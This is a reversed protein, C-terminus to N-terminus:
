SFASVYEAYYISFSYTGLRRFISEAQKLSDIQFLNFLLNVAIDYEEVYDLTQAVATCACLQVFLILVMILSITKRM